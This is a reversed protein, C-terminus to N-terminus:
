PPGVQKGTGALEAERAGDIEKHLDFLLHARDSILLRGELSVGREQLMNPLPPMICAATLATHQNACTPKCAWASLLCCLWTKLHRAHLVGCRWRGARKALRSLGGRISHHSAFHVNLCPCAVLCVSVGM